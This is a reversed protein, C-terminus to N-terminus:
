KPNNNQTNEWDTMKLIVTVLQLIYLPNKKCSLQYTFEM